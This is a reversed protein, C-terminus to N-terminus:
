PETGGAQRPARTPSVRRIYFRHGAYETPVLLGDAILHEVVQWDGGSGDVLAQVASERLPHVVAIALLDETLDGTAAFADGEDRSLLELRGFCEQVMQFYRNLTHEDPPEVTPAAPPRIPVALYAKQPSLKAVSEGVRKAEADSDNVGRGLMTETFLRGRFRAAFGSIRSERIEPFVSVRRLCATAGVGPM